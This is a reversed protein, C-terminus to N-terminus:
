DELDEMGEDEESEGEGVGVKLPAAGLNAMQNRIATEISQTFDPNEEMYQKANERGQAFREGDYYYFSGRKDILDMELGIDLADGERSIGTGFM